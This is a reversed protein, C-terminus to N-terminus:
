PGHGVVLSAVAILAGSEVALSCLHLVIAFLLFLYTFLIVHKIYICIYIYLSCSTLFGITHKPVLKLQTNLLKQVFHFITLFLLPYFLSPSLPHFPVTPLPPHILLM